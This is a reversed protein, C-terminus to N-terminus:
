LIDQFNLATQSLNLHGFTTDGLSCPSRPSTSMTVLLPYYEIQYDTINFIKDGM